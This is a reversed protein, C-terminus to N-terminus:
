ICCVTGFCGTGIMCIHASMTEQHMRNPQVTPGYLSCHNTFNTPQDGKIGTLCRLVRSRSSASPSSCGPKRERNKLQDAPSEWDIRFEQPGPGQGFAQGPRTTLPSFSKVSRSLVLCIHHFSRIPCNLQFSSNTSDQETFANYNELALWVMPWGFSQDIANRSLSEQHLKLLGHRARPIFSRSHLARM